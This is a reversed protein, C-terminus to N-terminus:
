QGAVSRFLEVYRRAVAPWAFLDAAKAHGERGMAEREEKSTRLFRMLGQYLAEADGPPLLLGNSGDTVLDATAGVDSVIVPCARAMAELVVTPMGEFRTPLLLADQERYARFLQEDDVRGLLVVNDPLGLSRYHDLLPGDGALHFRAPAGADAMRRAVQMILDIGKNFAFRGVFLFRTTGDTSRDGPHFAPVEVANPLVAVRKAGISRLIGTLRGGLSITTHARRVLHRLLLRFPLGIARDKLTIGQFMELGHPHVITRDKFADIRPWVCFGQSLVVDPRLRDLEDAVRGGYRWLERLYFRQPDIPALPREQIAVLGAFVGHDHPHLVTIEVEGLAALHEVLLRSHRQMGGLVHPFVGDTCIAVRLKRESAGSSREM